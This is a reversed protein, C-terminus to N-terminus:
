NLHIDVNGVLYSIIIKVKQDRHEYNPSKWYIRNLMGTEKQENCDIQGFLVFAEIEVGYDESVNLDVDGVIGQFMLVNEQGEVMALSLDVNLEGLVHWMSTTRLTWPDRDWHVNATINQKQVHNGQPHMKKMKAYYLGLSIMLIAVVVMLHGLLIMGGGIAMFIYGTKVEDGSRIKYIGYGLIAIAAITFYNLWQGLIILLGLGILSIALLRKHKDM